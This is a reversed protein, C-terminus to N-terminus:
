DLPFPSQAWWPRPSLEVGAVWKVWWFGRRGPAVLRAPYGHGPTLPAGGVAVALLLHDLDSLPLYRDYGTLSRVRISRSAPDVATLLRSLPVGTWGSTAFWGSTCDLTAQVTTTGPAVLEDLSLHRTGAADTVALRWTTGSVAPTADDLWSTVPMRAPDVAHSGTFRRQAGPLGAIRVAGELGTYLAGGVAALLGAQVLTRRGLDVPHRRLPRAVVHWALLPLLVLALAIHLWLPEVGAVPGPVGTSSGVGAVLAGLTVVALGVSLWRGPRRRRMGGAAVPSKRPILAVVVLGVVGHVVAIWAGRASGTAQAAAGTLFALALVGFLALNTARWTWPRSRRRLAARVRDAM